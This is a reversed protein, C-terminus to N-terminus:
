GKRTEKKRARSYATWVTKYGRGTLSSIESFSLSKRLHSVVAELPGKKRDLFIRIPISIGEPEEEYGRIKNLQKKNIKSVATHYVRSIVISNRGTARAIEKFRMGRSERLFLVTAEMVGLSDATTRIIGVPVSIEGRVKEKKTKESSLREGSEIIEKLGVGYRERLFESFEGTLEM